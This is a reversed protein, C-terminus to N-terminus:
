RVDDDEQVRIRLVKAGPERIGYFGHKLRPVDVFVHTQDSNMVTTVEGYENTKGVYKSYSLKNGATIRVHAGQEPYDNTWNHVKITVKQAKPACGAVVMMLLLLRTTKM